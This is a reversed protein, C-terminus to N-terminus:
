VSMLIEKFKKDIEAEMSLIDDELVGKLDMDINYENCLDKLYSAHDITNIEDLKCLDRESLEDLGGVTKYFLIIDNVVKENM